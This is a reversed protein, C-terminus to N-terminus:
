SDQAQHRELQARVLEGNESMSDMTREPLSASQKLNKVGMWAVIAGAILVGLAVVLAAAWLPVLVGLAQIAAYILALLGTYLVVGGAVVFATGRGFQGVKEAVEARALAAEQRILTTVDDSLQAFLEGVSRHDAAPSLSTTREDSRIEPARAQENGDV